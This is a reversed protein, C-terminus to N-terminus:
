LKSEVVLKKNMFALTHRFRPFVAHGMNPSINRTLRYFSIQDMKISYIYIYLKQPNVGLFKITQNILLIYPFGSRSNRFM